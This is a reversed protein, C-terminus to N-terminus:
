GGAASLRGRVGHTDILGEIYRENRILSVVEALWEAGAGDRHKPTGVAQQVATFQGDLIRGGLKEVAPILGPRLGALAELGEDTYRRTAENGAARVLEAHEINRDLWNDYATLEAVAIRIGPQDVDAITQLPSDDPVLYTAEIEAYADTFAITEARIATAGINGIDWEDAVAGDALLAPTDYGILTLDVGLRDAILAAVDPSVGIPDGNDATDTVLLFNRLNIGARLTGTPTLAAIAAASPEPLEITM